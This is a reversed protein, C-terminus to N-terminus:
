RISHMLTSTSVLCAPSATTHKSSCRFPAVGTGPGVFVVPKSLDQPPHFAGGGRLFVQVRICMGAIAAAAREHGLGTM